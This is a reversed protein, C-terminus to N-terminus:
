IYKSILKDTLNWALKLHIDHKIKMYFGVFGKQIDQPFFSASKFLKIYIMMTLIM